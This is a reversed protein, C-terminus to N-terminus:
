TMGVFMGVSTAAVLGAMWAQPRPWYRLAMFFALGAIGLIVPLLPARAAWDHLGFLKFSAAVLWYALPPKEYYRFDLLRMEMGHGSTIMERPIESYRGEDPDNLGRYFLLVLLAAIFIVLGVGWLLRETRKDATLGTEM